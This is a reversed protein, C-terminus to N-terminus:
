GIFVGNKIAWLAVATDYAFLDIRGRDLKAFSRSIADVGGISHINVPLVGAAHLFQEGVDDIVAGVRYSNIDAVTNIHIHKDKKAVLSTSTNLIPGVWKFLKEREKTRTTSFLCTNKVLLLRNYGRAWPQLHLDKVSQSSNLKELMLVLLDVSVGQLKGDKEFNFPPYNETAFYIDDISQARLVSSTSIFLSIIIVSVIYQVKSQM